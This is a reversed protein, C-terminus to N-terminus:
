RQGSKKERPHKVIALYKFVLMIFKSSTDFIGQPATGKSILGLEVKTTWMM